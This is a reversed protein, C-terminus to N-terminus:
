ENDRLPKILDDKYEYLVTRLAQRSAYYEQYKQDYSARRDIVEYHKDMLLLLLECFERVAHEAGNCGSIYDVLQNKELYKLFLPNANRGVALRIGTLKAVPVDLIDDYVYCVESPTINYNDCLDLLAKQKQVCKLYVVDLHERKAWSVASPNQKGTIVSVVPLSKNKLFYGFRLMQIGMSDIESFHSYVNQGKRGDNFVGDWDFVFAKIETLKDGLDFASRIFRGGKDTFVDEKETLDM